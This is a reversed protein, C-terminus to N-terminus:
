TSVMNCNQLFFFSIVFYKWSTLETFYFHMRIELGSRISLRSLFDTFDDKLRNRSLSVGAKSTTCTFDSWLVFSGDGVALHWFYDAGTIISYRDHMIWLCCYWDLYTYRCSMYVGFSVIYSFKVYIVNFMSLISTNFTHLVWKQNEGNEELFKCSQCRKGVASRLRFGTIIVDKIQTLAYELRFQIGQKTAWIIINWWCSFRGEFHDRQVCSYFISHRYFAFSSERSTCLNLM